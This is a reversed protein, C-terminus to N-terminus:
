PRKAQEQDDCGGLPVRLALGLLTLFRTELQLAVIGGTGPGAPNAIVQSAFWDDVQGTVLLGSEVSAHVSGM